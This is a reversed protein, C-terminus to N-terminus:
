KAPVYNLASSLDNFLASEDKEDYALIPHGVPLIDLPTTKGNRLEYGTLIYSDTGADGGSPFEHTLFLLYRRGVRPMHQRNIWSVILKGSPMRVRGGERGVTLFEGVKIPVRTDNKLVARVNVEFESYITTNDDSLHATAKTIDGVVISSSRTIPLAPLGVEWDIITFVQKSSESIPKGHRKNFKKNKNLRAINAGNPERNNFDVVPFVSFDPESRQIATQFAAGTPIILLGLVLLVPGLYKAQGMSSVGQFM